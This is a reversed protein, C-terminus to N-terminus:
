KEQLVSLSDNIGLGSFITRKLQSGKIQLLTCSSSSISVSASYSGLKSSNFESGEILCQQCNFRCVICGKDQGYFSGQRFTSNIINIIGEKAAIFPDIDTYQGDGKFECLTIELKINYNHVVAGGVNFLCYILSISNGGESKIFGGKWQVMEINEIIIDSIVDYAVNIIFLGNGTITIKKRNGGQTSNIKVQEQHNLGVIFAELENTITENGLVESISKNEDKGPNNKNIYKIDIDQILNVNLINAILEINSSSYQQSFNDSFIVSIALLLALIM